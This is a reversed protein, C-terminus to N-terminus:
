ENGGERVKMMEDAIHFALIAAKGTSSGRNSMFEGILAAAAFIDRPNLQGREGKELQDELNNVTENLSAQAYKDLPNDVAILYHSVEPYFEEDIYDTFCLGRTLTFAM